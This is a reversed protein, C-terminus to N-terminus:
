LSIDCDPDSTNWLQVLAYLFKDCDLTGAPSVNSRLLRMTTKVAVKARGNSQPNYPSSIRHHVEWGNLFDKTSSSAFEPGEDSWLEEPVSFTVVFLRLCRTLVESGASSSGTTSVFVESWGSIHDGIVM